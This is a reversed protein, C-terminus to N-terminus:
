RGSFDVQLIDVLRPLKRRSSALECLLQLFVPASKLMASDVEGRHGLIALAMGATIEQQDVLKTVFASSDDEYTGTRM